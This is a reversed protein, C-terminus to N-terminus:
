KSVNEIIFKGKEKINVLVKINKYIVLFESDKIKKVNEPKKLAQLVQHILLNYNQMGLLADKKFSINIRKEDSDYINKELFLTELDLDDYLFLNISFVNSDSLFDEDVFSSKQDYSIFLNKFINFIFNKSNLESLNKAILDYIIKDLSKFDQNQEKKTLIALNDFDNLVLFDERISFNLKDLLDKKNKMKRKIYYSLSFNDKEDYIFNKEYFLKDKIKIREQLTRNFMDFSKVKVIDDNYITKYRRSLSDYFYQIYFSENKFIKEEKILRKCFDYTYRQLFNQDRIEKLSFLNYLYSKEDIVQHNSNLITKNILRKLYDYEFHTKIGKEDIYDKLTGDLNYIYRKIHGNRNIFIPKSFINYKIDIVDKGQEIKSINGFCDYSLTKIDKKKDNTITTIKILNSFSDYEYFTENGLYDLHYTKNNKEDFNNRKEFFIDDKKILKKILNNAHDYYYLKTLTNPYIKSIKNDNDDYHYITKKNFSTTKSLINSKEDYEYFHSFKYENASDFVDKKILKGKSSYSYIKKNLLKEEFSNLDLFKKEKIKKFGLFPASDIPYFYKVERFTVDMLDDKEFSTGDDQIKKILIFDQDYEYFDRKKIKGDILLYKASILNTNPLYVYETSINTDDSKEVLLNKSYKYRKSFSEISENEGSINGSTKEEILNFNDDYFYDIQVVKKQNEDLFSKSTLISLDNKKLWCFREENELFDQGNINKFRQIKEIKFDKNYFYIYKNGLDDVVTTKGEKQNLIGNEYYFRYENSFNGLSTKQKLTKVREFRFDTEDFFEVGIEPNKNGLLYYDIVRQRKDKLKITKLLPHTKKYNLHYDFHEDLINSHIEKIIYFPKRAKKNNSILPYYDKFRLHYFKGDSTTINLDYKDENKESYSIEPHLCQFKIWAYVKSSSPNTSKIEELNNFKDYSYYLINGNLLKTSRLFYESLHISERKFHKQVGNPYFIVLDYIGRMEVKIKSPDVKKLDKQHFFKPLNSTSKYNLIAVQDNKYNKLNVAYTFIEGTPEIIDVKDAYFLVRTLDKYSFGALVFELHDKEERKLLDFNNLSFYSKKISIPEKGNAVIEDQIVLNGNILDVCEDFLVKPEKENLFERYYDKTSAFAFIKLFLFLFLFLKKM